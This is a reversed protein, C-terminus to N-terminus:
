ARRKLRKASPTSVRYPVRRQPPSIRTDGAPSALHRELDSFAAIVERTEFARYRKATTTPTIIHHEILKPIAENVAQVSRKIVVAASQVTIIPSGPLKKLLLDTASGRRVYGLRQRWMQELDAIRRNFREADEAARTCAAAFTAVWSNMGEIAPSSGSPGVYRTASLGALYDKSRTALILSIPPLTHSILKRRRLILYILARGVRGNGDAFPHITEFQAHAIAAQAVASLTDENCFQCLDDMLPVVYSPPPPVFAASCPNFNNGGVWNQKARLHGGHKNASSTALLRRHVELLLPLSIKDGAKVAQIAYTMADINALVESATVDQIIGGFQREAEARLLRRAGVELGEIKSSAVAEARLLLRALAETDVLVTAEKDFRVIRHEADTIDAIVSGEFVFRRGVLRDPLYADYDCARRERRPLSHEELLESTWRKRLLSAM